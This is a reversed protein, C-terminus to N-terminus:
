RTPWYVKARQFVITSICIQTQNRTPVGVGITIRKADSIKQFDDIGLIISTGWKGRRQRYCQRFVIQRLWAPFARPGYVKPLNHYAEIFAEQAADEALHFDGLVSYAYAVAMDQFRRVLQGYADVDGNQAQRLLIKLEEM